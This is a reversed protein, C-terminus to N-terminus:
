YYEGATSKAYPIKSKTLIWIEDQVDRILGDYTSIDEKLDKLQYYKDYNKQVYTLDDLEDDMTFLAGSLASGANVKAPAIVAFLSLLLFMSLLISLIRITKM